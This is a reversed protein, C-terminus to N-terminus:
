NGDAADHYLSLLVKARELRHLAAALDRKRKDLEHSPAAKVEVLKETRALEQKATEVVLNVTEVESELLQIQTRYEKAAFKQDRELDALLKEQRKVDADGIGNQSADRSATWAELKGKQETVVKASSALLKRYEDASRLIMAGGTSRSEVIETNRVITSQTPKAQQQQTTSKSRDVQINQRSTAESGSKVNPDLLEELRRDIIQDAIRDRMEISRQIRELRAAFEALEARQLEQRALFTKRVVERLEAKRKAKYETKQNSTSETSRLSDATENIKIDLDAIQSRVTAAPVLPVDVDVTLRLKQDRKTSEGGAGRLKSGHGVVPMKKGNEGDVLEVIAEVEKLQSADGRVILANIKADPAIAFGEDSFLESLTQAVVKADAHRLMFIRTESVQIKKSQTTPNADTGNNAAVSLTPRAAKGGSQAQLIAQVINGGDALNPNSFDKQPTHIMLGDTVALLKIERDSKIAMLIARAVKPIDAAALLPLMINRVGVAVFIKDSSKLVKEIAEASKEVHAMPQGNKGTFKITRRASTTQTTPNDTSTNEASSNGFQSPEESKSKGPGAAPDASSVSGSDTTASNGYRSRSASTYKRPAPTALQVEVAFQKKATIMTRLNDITPWPADAPALVTVVNRDDSPKVFIIRQVNHGQLSRVLSMVDEVKTDPRAAIRATLGSGGQAASDAPKTQRAIGQKELAEVVQRIVDSKSSQSDLEIIAVRSTSRREIGPEAVQNRGSGPTPALSPEAGPQAAEAPTTAPVPTRATPKPSASKGTKPQLTKPTKPDAPTGSSAEAAVPEQTVKPAKAAAVPKTPPTQAFATSATAVAIWFCLQRYKIM